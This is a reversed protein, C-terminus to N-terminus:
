QSAARTVPGFVNQDALSTWHSSQCSSNPSSPHLFTMTMPSPTAEHAANVMSLFISGATVPFFVDFDMRHEEDVYLRYLHDLGFNKDASLDDRLCFKVTDHTGDDGLSYYVERRFDQMDDRDLYALTAFRDFSAIICSYVADKFTDPAGSTKDHVIPVRNDVYRNLQSSDFSRRANSGLFPRLKFLHETPRKGDLTIRARPHQDMKLEDSGTLSEQVEVAQFPQQHRVPAIDRSQDQTTQPKGKRGQKKRGARKWTTTEGVPSRRSSTSAPTETPLGGTSATVNHPLNTGRIDSVTEAPPPKSNLPPPQLAPDGGLSETRPQLTSM